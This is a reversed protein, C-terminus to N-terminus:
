QAKKFFENPISGLVLQHFEMQREISIKELKGKVHIREGKEALECYRGRLTFTRNLSIEEKIEKNVIDVDELQYLCPTFIANSDDKITATIEISGLSKIKTAKYPENFENPLQVLRIYFDRGDITGQLNKGKELYFFTNFDIQKSQGRNKWLKRLEKKSYRKIRSSSDFIEPMSNYLERGTSKGFVVLDIDSDKKHLKVLLSGTLGIVDSQLDTHNLIQNVLEVTQNEIPIQNTKEKNLLEQLGYIPNYIHYLDDSHVAQLIGRGQPDNFLYKPFNQSLFQYRESLSYIKHYSDRRNKRKYDPKYPIYRVFAITRDKPHTLGKVDFILDDKSKIFFGEIPCDM